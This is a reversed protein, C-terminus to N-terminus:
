GGKRNVVLGCSMIEGVVEEGFRKYKELIILLM